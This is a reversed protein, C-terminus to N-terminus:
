SVVCVVVVVVVVYEVMRNPCIKFHADAGAGNFHAGGGLHCETERLPCERQQHFLLDEARINPIGCGFGCGSGVMGIM